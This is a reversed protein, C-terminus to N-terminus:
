GCHWQVSRAEWREPPTLKELMRSIAIEPVSHRRGANRRMREAWGTELYVIKVPAGYATFLRIQRARTQPPIRQVKELLPKQDPCIRGLIDAESLVCLNQLTFGPSLEGNAAARRLRLMGDADDIAHPPLSHYRILGCVAEKRRM